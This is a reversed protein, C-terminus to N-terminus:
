RRHEDSEHGRAYGARQRAVEPDGRRQRGHHIRCGAVSARHRGKECRPSESLHRGPSKFAKEMAPTRALLATAAASLQVSAKQTDGTVGALATFGAFLGEQSGGLSVWSSTVQGVAARLEPLTTKALRITTVALDSTRKQAKLSTDGYALTVATLLDTATLADTNGATALKTVLRLNDVTDATDGIASIIQFTAKSLDTASKGSEVSLERMAGGLDLVRQTQGPLLGQIDALTRDFAVAADAAQTAGRVVARAAFMGALAKGASIASRQLSGIQRKRRSVLREDRNLERDDVRWKLRATLDRVFEAM